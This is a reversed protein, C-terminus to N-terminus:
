RKVEIGARRCMSKLAETVDRIHQADTMRDVDIPVSGWAREFRRRIFTNLGQAGRLEVVGGDALLRWLVHLYRVDSRDAAPRRAKSGAEPRFGRAKLADLVKRQEAPSMDALSAKGTAVLQLDHRMDADLGLTRCGAFIMKQLTRDSM